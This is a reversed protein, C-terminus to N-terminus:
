IHIRKNFAYICLLLSSIIDDTDENDILFKRFYKNMKYAIAYIPLLSEIYCLTYKNKYFYKILNIQIADPFYDEFM